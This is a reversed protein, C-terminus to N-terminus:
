SRTNEQHREAAETAGETAGEAYENVVVYETVPDWHKGVSFLAELCKLTQEAKHPLHLCTTLTFLM